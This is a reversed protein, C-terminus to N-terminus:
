SGVKPTQNASVPVSAVEADVATHIEKAVAVLESNSSDLDASTSKVKSVADNFKQALQPDM